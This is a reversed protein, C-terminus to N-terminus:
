TILRGHNRVHTRPSISNEKPQAGRLLRGSSGTENLGGPFRGRLFPFYWSRKLNTDTLTVVIDSDPGEELAEECGDEHSILYDGLENLGKRYHGKSKKEGRIFVFTSERVIPKSNKWAPGNIRFIAFSLNVGHGLSHKGGLSMKSDDWCKTPLWTLSDILWIVASSVQENNM